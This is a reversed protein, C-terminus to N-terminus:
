SQRSIQTRGSFAHALTADDSHLLEAGVPLGFALRSVRVDSSGLAESLFAATANGETDFDTALIVEGIAEESRKVRRLLPEITLEELGIGDLPSLLGGLVHYLGQFRGTEEIRWADATEAVVCLQTRDRQTSSCVVCPSNETHLYCIECQHLLKRGESIALAIEGATAPPQKLLWLAIRSATRKGISPFRAIADSLRDFSEPRISMREDYM